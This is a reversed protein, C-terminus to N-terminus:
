GGIKRLFKLIINERKEEEEKIMKKRDKEYEKRVNNFITIPIEINIIDTMDIKGEESYAEVRRTMLEKLNDGSFTLAVMFNKSSLVFVHFSGHINHEKLYFKEKLIADRLRRKIDNKM